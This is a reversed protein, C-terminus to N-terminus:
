PTGRDHSLAVNMAIAIPMLVFTPHHVSGGVLRTPADAPVRCRVVRGRERGDRDASGRVLRRTVRLQLVHGPRSAHRFDGFALVALYAAVVFAVAAVILRVVLQAVM